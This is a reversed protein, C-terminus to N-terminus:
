PLRSTLDWPPCCSLRRSMLFGFSTEALILSTIAVGVTLIAVSGGTAGSPFYARRRGFSQGTTLLVSPATSLSESQAPGRMLAFIANLLRRAKGVRLSGNCRRRTSSLHSVQLLLVSCLTWIQFHTASRQRHRFRPMSFRGGTSSPLDEALGQVAELRGM